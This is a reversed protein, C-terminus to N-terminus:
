IESEPGCEGTLGNWTRRTKEPSPASSLWFGKLSPLILESLLLGLLSYDPCEGATHEPTPSLLPLNFVRRHGFCVEGRLGTPLTPFESINTRTSNDWALVTQQLPLLPTREANSTKLFDKQPRQASIPMILGPGATPASLLLPRIM